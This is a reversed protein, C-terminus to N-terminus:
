GITTDLIHAYYPKLDVYLGQRGVEAADRVYVTGTLEDKFIIHETIESSLPLLLRCQSQNASYNVVVVKFIRASRWFWALLNHYSENGEWARSVPLLRWEGEHFVSASTIRLLREYFQVMERDVAEGPERVLQVPLSIRRGELQGDHFLRLGPITAIILAAALSRERGFAVAARPEDHNEIFRVSHAQYGSDAMLYERIDSPTAYRLRDYLVKDYTFDFGLQQLKRELGWYAEALFLFDPRREKVRAIAETWFETQPRPYDRLVEGWVREFVENLALMAMDCRVGDAVEALRLLENILASRLGTSYFNLQVTDSWPPFNPDRGHALYIHSVPSFFWDPHTRVDAERGPVFWEPHALVWPHDAALHNPVFDLILGLGLRNLRSKLQALEMPQGLAPDLNYNYIAYPSGAVDEPTWGPLARDYERRLFENVLAQQRAYPSRQWVGMPWLLDFGPQALWQWEEDPITALTLTRHYKESVRRLFIRANVEYLHPHRHM